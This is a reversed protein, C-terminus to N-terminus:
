CSTRSVRRRLGRSVALGAQGAGVVVVEPSYSMAGFITHGSGGQGSGPLGRRVTRTESVLHLNSDEEDADFLYAQSRPNRSAGTTRRHHAPHGTAVTHCGSTPGLKSQMITTVGLATRGAEKKTPNSPSRSERQHRPGPSWGPRGRRQYTPRWSRGPYALTNGIETRVVAARGLLADSAPHELTGSQISPLLRGRHAIDGGVSSRGQPPRSRNGVTHIPYAEARDRRTSRCRRRGPFRTLAKM